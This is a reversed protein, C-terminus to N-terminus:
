AEISENEEEMQPPAIIENHIARLIERAFKEPLRREIVRCAADLQPVNRRSTTLLRDICDPCHGQRNLHDAPFQRGCWATCNLLTELEPTVAPTSNAEDQVKIGDIRRARQRIEETLMDGIIARLTGRNITKKVGKGDHRVHSEIEQLSYKGTTNLQMINQLWAIRNETEKPLCQRVIEEVEAKTMYREAGPVEIQYEQNGRKVTRTNEPEIENETEMRDRYNRVTKEDVGCHLAIARNSLTAGQPHKLANRVIKEIDAQTRRLGHKVNAGFARWKADQRTGPSLRVPLVASMRKAAEGRHFGDYIYIQGDADEIGFAPDFTVGDRMMQAYEDVLDFDMQARSQIFIAKNPDIERVGPTTTLQQAAETWSSGSGEPKTTTEIQIMKKELQAAIEKASKLASKTREDLTQGDIYEIAEGTVVRM